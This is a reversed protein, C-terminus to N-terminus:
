GRVQSLDAMSQVPPDEEANTLRGPVLLSTTRDLRNLDELREVPILRDTARAAERLNERALVLTLDKQPQMALAIPLIGRLGKVSGDLSLEGVLWFPDLSTEDLQGSAALIGAAVALDFGAGAKRVHAPAMNVLIRRAPFHFGSNRIASRVRERSERVTADPLGVLIFDPLGPSMDVEVQIQIAELGQLICTHIKALM